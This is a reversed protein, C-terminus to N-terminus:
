SNRMRPGRVPERSCVAKRFRKSLTTETPIGLESMTRRYRLRFLGVRPLLAVPKTTQICIVEALGVAMRPNMHNSTPERRRKRGKLLDWMQTCEKMMRSEVKCSTVRVTGERITGRTARKKRM